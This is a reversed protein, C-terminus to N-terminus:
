FCSVNDCCISPSYPKPLGLDVKAWKHLTLNNDLLAYASNVTGIDVSLFTSPYQLSIASM